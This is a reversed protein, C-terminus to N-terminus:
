VRQEDNGNLDKTSSEASRLVAVFSIALMGTLMLPIPLWSGTTHTLWTAAVPSLGGGVAACTQYGFSLGSYRVGTTFLEALFAAMPGVILGVFVLGGTFAILVGGVSGTLLLPFFVFSWAALGAVGVMMPRRRGYRDSIHGGYVVAAVYIVQAATSMTLLFSENPVGNRVAFPISFVLIVYYGAFQGFPASVAILLQRPHKRFLEVLPLKVTEKREVAEKMMPTEGLRYRIYFGVLLLVSSLLFPIRWAGDAFQQDSTAWTLFALFASGLLFGVSSSATTLAGWLGRRGSGHTHELVLITAGGYEGGVGIGQVIRLLILVLPAAVGIQAYSPLLGIITTSVGMMTLTIFLVKSRGIKDGFHGFLIGGVPRALYGVAFTGWVLMSEVFQNDGPFFLEGFVLGSVTAYVMFDFYEIITGIMGAAVVRRTSPADRTASPSPPGSPRPSQNSITSM